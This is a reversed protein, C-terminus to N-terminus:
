ASNQALFGGKNAVAGGSVTAENNTLEVDVLVVVDGNAIAGGYDSKGNSINVSELKLYGNKVTFARALGNADINLDGGKAVITVSGFDDEDIDITIEDSASTFKLNGAAVEIVDNEPTSAAEQIAAKIADISLEQKSVSIVNAEEAAAGLLAGVADVALLQREELTETLLRRPKLAGDARRARKNKSASARGQARQANISFFHFFGSTM